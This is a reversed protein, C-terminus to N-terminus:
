PPGAPLRSFVRFNSLATEAENASPKAAAVHRCFKWPNHRTPLTSPKPYAIAFTLQVNRKVGPELNVDLASSHDPQRWNLKSSYQWPVHVVARSVQNAADPRWVEEDRM